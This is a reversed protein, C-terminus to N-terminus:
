HHAHGAEPAASTGEAARYLSEIWHTFEAYSGTFKRGTEVGGEAHRRAELLLGFRQRVAASARESILRVLADPTGTELANDVARVAPGPDTGAPKLGTYPAGERARHLRVVTEFFSVDALEKAEPSLGRVALTKALASRVEAEAEPAIWKLVPTSDKKAIAARADSVVPGDLADCHARAPSPLLAAFLASFVIPALRNRKTYMASEKM